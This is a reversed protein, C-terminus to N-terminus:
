CSEQLEDRMRTCGMGFCLCALLIAATPALLATQVGSLDVLHGVLVPASATGLLHMLFIFTAQALAARRDDVLDDVAAAMPGHYWNIFFMLLWSGVYFLPGRPAYIAILAMPVALGFGIAIALLRGYTRTKMLRDAVAGGSLVGALGGTLGLGGLIMMAEDPEFGKSRDLFDAFWALYGGAAFAAGIAGGIMWRMTVISLVSRAGSLLSAIAMDQPRALVAQRKPPVDVVAVLASVMLGPIAVALFAWPFGPQNGLVIGAGGGLFLGLNLIAITRAKRDHPFVDSLLANAIPVCAATGVGALIRGALMYGFGDAFVVALNALSWILGGLALVRRRDFRDALWGFPVNMVAHAYMFASTMWGLEANDFQFAARLDPYMTVVVNRTAYNVFNLSALLGLVYWGYARSRIVV